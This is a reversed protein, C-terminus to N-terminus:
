PIWGNHVFLGVLFLNVFLGIALLLWLRPGRGAWRALVVLLPFAILVHRPLAMYPSLSGNYYCLAM